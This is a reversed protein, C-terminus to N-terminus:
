VLVYHIKTSVSIGISLTNKYVELIGLQYSASLTNLSLFFFKMWEDRAVAHFVMHAAIHRLPITCFYNGDCFFTVSLSRSV